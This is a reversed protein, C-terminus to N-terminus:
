LVLRYIVINGFVSITSLLKNGNKLNHKPHVEILKNVQTPHVTILNFLQMNEDRIQCTLELGLLTLSHISKHLVYCTGHAISKIHIAIDHDTM